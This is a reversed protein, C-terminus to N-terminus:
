AATYLAQYAPDDRLSVLDADQRSWEVLEPALRLAESLSALAKDKYGTLAYNCALNYLNTGRWTPTDDLPILREAMNEHLQLAKARDGWEIYVYSLHLLPHTYLTVVIMRWLPRNRQWALRELSFLDQESLAQIQEIIQAHSAAFQDLVAQWSQRQYSQYIEANIQDLNEWNPELESSAGQLEASLRTNWECIHAVVDKPSWRELTGQAARQEDSLTNVFDGVEQYASQALESLQKKM